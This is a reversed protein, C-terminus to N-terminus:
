RWTVGEKGEIHTFEVEFHVVMHRRVTYRM